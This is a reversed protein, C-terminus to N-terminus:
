MQLPDLNEGSSTTLHPISVRRGLFNACGNADRYTHGITINPHNQMLSMIETFLSNYEHFALMMRNIILNLADLSGTEPTWSIMPWKFAM